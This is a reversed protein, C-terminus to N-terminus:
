NLLRLIALDGVQLYGLLIMMIVISYFLIITLAILVLVMSVSSIISLYKKTTKRLRKFFLQVDRKVLTAFESNAFTLNKQDYTLTIFTASQTKFHEVLRIIWSERRNTLCNICKGCPVIVKGDKNRPNQVKLTIPSICEM